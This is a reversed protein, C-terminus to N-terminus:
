ASVSMWETAELLFPDSHVVSHVVKVAQLSPGPTVWRSHLFLLVDVLHGWCRAGVVCQGKVDRLGLEFWLSFQVNVKNKTWSNQKVSSTVCM